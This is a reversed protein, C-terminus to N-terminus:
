RASIIVVAGRSIGDTSGISFRHPEQVRHKSEHGDPASSSDKERFADLHREYMVTSRLRFISLSSPTIIPLHKKPHSLHWSTHGNLLPPPDLSISSGEVSSSKFISLTDNESLNPFVARALVPM